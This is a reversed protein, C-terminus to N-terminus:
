QPTQGFAQRSRLGGDGDGLPAEVWHDRRTPDALPCMRLWNRIREECSGGSEGRPCALM